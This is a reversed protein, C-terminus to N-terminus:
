ESLYFLKLKGNEQQELEEAGTASCGEASPRAETSFAKECPHGRGQVDLSGADASLQM